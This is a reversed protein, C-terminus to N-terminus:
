SFVSRLTPLACKEYGYEERHGSSSSTATATSATALMASATVSSHKALRVDLKGGQGIANQLASPFTDFQFATPTGNALMNSTTAKIFLANHKTLSPVVQEHQWTEFIQM